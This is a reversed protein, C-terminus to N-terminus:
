DLLTLMAVELSYLESNKTYYQSLRVLLLIKELTNPKIQGVRGFSKLAILKGDRKVVLKAYKDSNSDIQNQIDKGFYHKIGKEFKIYEIKFPQFYIQEGLIVEKEIELNKILYTFADKFAQSDMSKSPLKSIETKLIKLPKSLHM